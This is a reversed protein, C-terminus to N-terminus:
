RRRKPAGLLAQLVRKSQLGVDPVGLALIVIPPHLQKQLTNVPQDSRLRPNEVDWPFIHPPAATLRAVTSAGTKHSPLNNTIDAGTTASGALRGTERQGAKTRRTPATWSPIRCHRMRALENPLAPGFANGLAECVVAGRRADSADVPMQSAMVDLSWTRTRQPRNSRHVPSQTLTASPITTSRTARRVAIMRAATEPRASDCASAARVDIGDADDGCEVAVDVEAADLPARM